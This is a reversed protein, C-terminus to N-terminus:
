TMDGTVMDGTCTLIDLSCYVFGEHLNEPIDITEDLIYNIYNIFLYFQFFFAQCMQVIKEYGNM